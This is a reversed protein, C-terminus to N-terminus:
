IRLALELKDAPLVFRYATYDNSTTATAKAGLRSIVDDLGAASLGPTGEYMMHALAHALGTKGPREQNAGFRYWIATEVVPAEHNEVIVVRLGNDLTEATVPVDTADPEARLALPGSALALCALAACFTRGYSGRWRPLM